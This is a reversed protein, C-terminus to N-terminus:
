FKLREFKEVDELADAPERFLISTRATKYALGMGGEMKERLAKTEKEFAAIVKQAARVKDPMKPQAKKRISALFKYRAAALREELFKQQTKTM